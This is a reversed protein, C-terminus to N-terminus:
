STNPKAGVTSHREVPVMRMGPPPGAVVGRRVPKMPRRDAPALRWNSLITGLVLKMEFQALASGICSRDGLGFPLYEYSSYQRELFREPRFRTPEPYLDERRHTLYLCPILETGAEVRYGMIEMPARAIRIVGLVGPHLRLTERVVATLYPLQAIDNPTVGNRPTSLEDRLREHVEPVQHICYLAWTLAASTTEHGAFLLSMVEDRLEAETMPQGTADRSATLISLIDPETPAAQTRRERIEELLLQDIGRKHHVLRGWPSLSGWDRRPLWALVLASLPGTVSNLLSALRRRLQELRPGRDPGLLARCIM